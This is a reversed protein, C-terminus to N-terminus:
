RNWEDVEDEKLAVDRMVRMCQLAEQFRQSSFSSEVIEPIVKGMDQVAKTVLDGRATNEEFDHVPHANGIIRGPKADQGTVIMGKELPVDLDMTDEGYGKLSAKPRLSESPSAALTAGRSYESANVLTPSPSYDPIYADGAMLDALTLPVDADTSLGDEAGKAKKRMKLRPPVLCIICEAFLWITCGYLHMEGPKVDFLSKCRQAPGRSKMIVDEPPHIFKLIEPHPPPIPDQEIDNTIAAHFIAEKIRHVAPHVAESPDFWPLRNRDLFLSDLFPLSLTRDCEGKKTWNALLM